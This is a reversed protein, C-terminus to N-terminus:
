HPTTLVFASHREVIRELKANEHGPKIVFCDQERDIADFEEVTLEILAGCDRNECECVVVVPGPLAWEVTFREFQDVVRRQV